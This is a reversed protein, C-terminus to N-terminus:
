YVIAISGMWRNMERQKGSDDMGMGVLWLDSPSEFGFLEARPYLGRENQKQVLVILDVEEAGRNYFHSQAFNATTGTDLVDDLMVVTRGKVSIDPALDMVIRPEGAVREDKYTSITMYDVQPHFDPALEAIAHMLMATFPVGGKMFCVFLTDKQRYRDIVERAMENIRVTLAEKSALEKSFSREKSVEGM